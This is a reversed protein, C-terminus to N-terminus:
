QVICCIICWDLFLKYIARTM